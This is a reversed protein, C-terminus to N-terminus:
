GQVKRGNLRLIGRVTNQEPARSPLGAAVRRPNLQHHAPARIISSPTRLTNTTPLNLHTQPVDTRRLQRARHVNERGRSRSREVMRSGGGDDRGFRFSRRSAITKKGKRYCLPAPTGRGIDPSPLTLSIQGARNDTTGSMVIKWVAALLIGVETATVTAGSQEGSLLQLPSNRRRVPLKSWWASSPHLHTNPARRTTTATIACLCNM